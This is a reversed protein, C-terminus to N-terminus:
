PRTTSQGLLSMMPVTLAVTVGVKNPTDDGTILGVLVDARLQAMTRTEDPEGYKGFAIGDLNARVRALDDVPVLVNLWGM